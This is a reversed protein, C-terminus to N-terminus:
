TKPIDLDRKEMVLMYFLCIAEGNFQLASVEETKTKKFRLINSTGHGFEHGM